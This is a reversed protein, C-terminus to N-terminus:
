RAPDSTPRSGSTPGQILPDMEPYLRRPDQDENISNEGFPNDMKARNRTSNRWYEVETKKPDTETRVRNNKRPSRSSSHNEHHSNLVENPKGIQDPVKSKKKGERFISSLLPTVIIGPFITKAKAQCANLDSKRGRSFYSDPLRLTAIVSARNDSIDPTFPEKIPCIHM